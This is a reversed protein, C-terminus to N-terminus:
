KVGDWVVFLVGKNASHSQEPSEEKLHKVGWVGTSLVSADGGENKVFEGVDDASLHGVVFSYLIEAQLVDGAACPQTLTVTLKAQTTVEFTVSYDDAPTLLIGSLFVSLQEQSFAALDSDPADAFEFVTRGESINKVVYRMHSAEPSKGAPGEGGEAGDQGDQGPEGKLSELFDDETGSNGKSLWLDYASEGDEGQPGEPGQLAPYKEPDTNPNELDEILEAWRNHEELHGGEGAKYTKAM